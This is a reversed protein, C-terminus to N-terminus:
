ELMAHKMAADVAEAGSNGFIACYDGQARRSLESALQAAYDRRSGQAHVPRGSLLLRQAEAVLAPHAHGFLLSGYGGVLDLVEIERGAHDRYYLHDGQGREYIVDLRLTHLLQNLRPKFHCGSKETAIQETSNRNRHTETNM